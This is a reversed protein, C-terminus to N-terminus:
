VAPKQVGSECRDPMLEGGHFFSRHTWRRLVAHSDFTLVYEDCWLGTSTWRSGPDEERVEYVWQVEGVPTSATRWPPGMHQRIEAQTAQGQVSRLYRTEKAEFVACGSVVLLLGIWASQRLLTM